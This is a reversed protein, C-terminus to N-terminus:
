RRRKKQPPKRQRRQKAKAEARRRESEAAEVEDSMGDVLSELEALLALDDESPAEPSRDVTRHRAEALSGYEFGATVLRRKEFVPCDDPCAYPADPASDLECSETVDGSASTGRLRHKCDTRM